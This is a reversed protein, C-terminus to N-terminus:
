VTKNHLSLYFNNLENIMKPDLYMKKAKSRAPNDFTVGIPLQKGDESTAIKINFAESPNFAGGIEEINEFGVMKEGTEDERVLAYELIFEIMGGHTGAPILVKSGSKLKTAMKQYHKILCAYAGAAEKRYNKAELSDLSGSYEVTKAQAVKSAQAKEEPSLDGFNEPLFSNYVQLHNYPKPSIINEHSLLKNARTRFKDDGAIENAYIDATELSRGIKKEGIPDANSGIAKIADYDEKGIGSKVAAEKTQERGLDNLMKGEREGHRMIKLDIVVNAGEPNKIKELLQKEFEM